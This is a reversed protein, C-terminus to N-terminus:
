ADRRQEGSQPHLEGLRGGKQRTELVAGADGSRDPRGVCKTQGVDGRQGLPGPEPEDAVSHAACGGGGDAAYRACIPGACIHTNDIIRIGSLPRVGDPLFPIPDCDGIKEISILPEALSAKGQESAFWEERTRVMACCGGAASMAEDLDLPNWHLCREAFAAQTAQCDLVACALQRLRPLLCVIFVWRGDKCRLFDTTEVLGLDDFPVTIGNHKAYLVAALNCVARRVEVKVDQGEGTRERWIAALEMGFLALLVATSEGIHHPSAVVPDKGTITLTGGFDAESIGLEASLEALASTITKPSNSM